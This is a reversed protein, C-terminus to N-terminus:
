HFEFIGDFVALGFNFRIILLEILGHLSGKSIQFILHSQHGITIEETHQMQTCIIMAREREREREREDQKKKKM